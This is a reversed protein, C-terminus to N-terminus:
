DEQPAVVTFVRMLDALTRYYGVLATVEILTREGLVARLGAYEADTLDQGGLVATTLDAVGVEIPDESTFTGDRLADLEVDTLGISRGVREHAYWEFDSATATAVILIAIERCRASMLTRYRIAAGLDQLPLGLGPAHLMIGFPGNLAGRHDKLAFVQKGQARPGGAIADYVARQDDDLDAPVLPVLRGSM